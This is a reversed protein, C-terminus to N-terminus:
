NMCNEFSMQDNESHTGRKKWQGLTTRSLNEVYIMYIGELNEAFVGSLTHCYPRCEDFTGFQAVNEM